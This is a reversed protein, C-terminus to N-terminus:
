NTERTAVNHITAEHGTSQVEQYLSAEENTTFNWRRTNTNSAKTESITHNILNMELELGTIERNGNGIRSAARQRYTYMCKYLAFNKLFKM